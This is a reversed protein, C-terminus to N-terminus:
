EIDPKYVCTDLGFIRSSSEGPKLTKSTNEFMDARSDILDIAHLLYAEFFSPIKVAGYEPIGHHSLLMHQLLLKKENFDKTCTEDPRLSGVFNAGMYLHGLLNGYKTYNEVLGNSNIEFEMVKGVDHLVTGAVLLDKNASTYVGSLAVAANAMRYTHYLLGYIYDHHMSKGAPIKKFADMLMKKGYISKVIYKYDVDEINNILTMLENMMFEQELPAAQLILSIDEVEDQNVGEIWDFNAQPKDNYSGVKFCAKVFGKQNWEDANYGKSEINFITGQISGSKDAITIRIYDDGKKTKAVRCEKIVFYGELVDNEKLDVITRDNM